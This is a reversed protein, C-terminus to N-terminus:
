PNQTGAIAELRTSAVQRRTICISLKIQGIKDKQSLTSKVHLFSLESEVRTVDSTQEPDYPSSVISSVNDPHIVVIVDRLHTKFAPHHCLLFSSKLELGAVQKDEEVVAIGDLFSSTTNAYIKLNGRFLQILGGPCSAPQYSWVITGVLSDSVAQDKVKAQVSGPLKITGRVDNVKAFDEFLSIELITQTAQYELVKSNMTVSGTQCHHADDLGGAVFFSHSTTTGIKARFSRNIISINGNEVLARRCSDAEVLLPERFRLYRTVGAASSHGCYQSVVTELIQCRFISITREKKVQLVEGQVVREVKHEGGAAHCEEPELLSYAEVINSANTCDYAIFGDAPTLVCLGSLLMLGFTLLSRRAIGKQKFGGWGPGASGAYMLGNGLVARFLLLNFASSRSAKL